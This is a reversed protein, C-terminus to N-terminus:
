VNRLDDREIFKGVKANILNNNKVAIEGNIIVYKIGEPSTTPNLYTAQDIIENPNFIVIDADYNLKIEGKEKLGLWKAPILTMKRLADILDIVGKERVFLGLVRPFTGAARPHGQRHNLMGDSAISMFPSKIANIIENEDMVSAVIMMEPHEMKVKNFLEKDCVMNKFPEEVLTIDSYDANLRERWGDDFVASGIFTSFADYPYCDADIKIKNNRAEEIVKLSEDMYGIAACSGIHSVRMPLDTIKSIEILEKMSQVADKGDKRFHASLLVSESKIRNTLNIVEEMSIGPAYELGFSIGIAGEDFYEKFRNYIMEQEIKTSSKYRNDVGCEERLTTYGAFLLYNVPAGNNIISKKFKKFGDFGSFNIGCNGGVCTTVGMKVMSKSVDFEINEQYSEIKEEHMHSDVFGSSVICNNADIIKNAEEKCDGIEVIKGNIIGINTKIFGNSDFDVTKGNMIKLDFM